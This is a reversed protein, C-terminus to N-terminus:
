HALKAEFVTENKLLALIMRANKNAIAVSAKNMGVREQLKRMWESHNDQKVFIDTAKNKRLAAKLASRGGHILLQRIYRDGHKSIRGLVQKEGSSHQKPVLGLYASLERGNKFDSGNGIKAIIATATLAGVGPLTEIRKCYADEKSLQELVSQYREIETDLRKMDQYIHQIVCKMDPSLLSNADDMLVRLQNTLAAKGKPIAIGVELLLGRVMNMLSTREKMYHSRVRHMAQIEMQTKSKTPVFLMNGRGVAEACAEADKADNKNNEVFKKVKRPSMLKVTFGLETLQQAWYHAGGCAEMGLNAMFPLFKERPLRKKLVAKGSHSAGHIQIFNKAIDVGITTIEKM